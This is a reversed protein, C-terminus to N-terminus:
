KKRIDIDGHGTKLRIDVKGDGIKGMAQAYHDRETDIELKYDSSISNRKWADRVVADITAGIQEPWQLRINGNGTEIVVRRIDAEPNDFEARVNGSGTTAFLSGSISSLDLNGSGSRIDLDGEFHDVSIRGGSNRVSIIGKVDEINMSGGSTSFEGEDEVVVDYITVSGGSTALDVDRVDLNSAHISGGSTAADLSGNINRIHLSGGSTAAEVEGTINNLDISGGSTAVDVDGEVDEVTVSGGSTAGDLDGKFRTISISGGSTAIDAYGELDSVEISGGSTAADINFKSPLTASLNMSYNHNGRWHRRSQGKITLIDLNESFDPIMEELLREARKKSMGRDAQFEIDIVAVKTKTGTFDMSGTFNGVRLKGNESIASEYHIMATWRGGKEEWKIEPTEAYVLSTFAAICLTFLLIKRFTQMM